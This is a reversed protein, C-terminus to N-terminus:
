TVEITFPLEQHGLSDKKRDYDRYAANVANMSKLSASDLDGITTVARILVVRIQQIHNLLLQEDPVRISGNGHSNLMDCVLRVTSSDWLPSVLAPAQFDMSPFFRAELVARLYTEAHRIDNQPLSASPDRTAVDGILEEAGARNRQRLLRMSSVSCLSLTDNPFLVRYQGDSEFGVVAGRQTPLGSRGVEVHQGETFVGPNSRLAINEDVNLKLRLVKEIACHSKYGDVFLVNMKHGDAGVKLVTGYKWDAVDGCFAYVPCGVSPLPPGLTRAKKTASVLPVDENLVSDFVSFDDDVNSSCTVHFPLMAPGGVDNQEQFSDTFGPQPATDTDLPDDLSCDSGPPNQCGAGATNFPVARLKMLDIVLCTKDSNKEPRGEKLFIRRQKGNPIAMLLLKKNDVSVVTTLYGHVKDDYLNQFRYPSGGLQESTQVPNHESAAKKKESQMDKIQEKREKDCNFPKWTIHRLRTISRSSAAGLYLSLVFFVTSDRRTHFCWMPPVELLNNVIGERVSVSRQIATAGMKLAVKDRLECKGKAYLSDMSQCERTHIHTLFRAEQRGHVGLVAMCADAGPDPIGSVISGLWEVLTFTGDGACEVVIETTRLDKLGFVQAAPVSDQPAQKRKRKKKNMVRKQRADFYFENTLSDVYCSSASTHVDSVAQVLCAINFKRVDCPSRKVRENSIDGPTILEKFKPLEVNALVDHATTASMLRMPLLSRNWQYRDVTAIKEGSEAGSLLVRYTGEEGFSFDVNRFSSPQARAVSSPAKAYVPCSSQWRGRVYRLASYHLPNFDAQYKAHTFRKGPVWNETCPGSVLDPADMGEESLHEKSVVETNSDATAASADSLSENQRAFKCRPNEDGVSEDSDAEKYCPVPGGRTKTRRVPQIVSAASSSDDTDCSLDIIEGTGRGGPQRLNSISKGIASFVSMMSNSRAQDPAVAGLQYKARSHKARRRAKKTVDVKKGKKANCPREERIQAETIDSAKEASCSSGVKGKFACLRRKQEATTYEAGVLTEIRASRDAFDYDGSFASPTNAVEIEHVTAMLQDLGELKELREFGAQLRELPTKDVDEERMIFLERVADYMGIGKLTDVPVNTSVLRCDEKFREEKVRANPIAKLASTEEVSLREKWMLSLPLEDEPRQNRPKAATVSRELLPRAFRVPGTTTPRYPKVEHPATDGPRCVVYGMGGLPCTDVREKKRRMECFINEADDLTMKLGPIEHEMVLCVHLMIEVLKDAQGEVKASHENLARLTMPLDTAKGKAWNSTKVSFDKVCLKEFHRNVGTALLLAILHSAGFSGCGLKLEGIKIADARIEKVLAKSGTKPAVAASRRGMQHLLEVLVRNKSADVGRNCGPQATPNPGKQFSGYLTRMDNAIEITLGSGGESNAAVVVEPTLSCAHLAQTEMYDSTRFHNNSYAHTAILEVLNLENLVGSHRELLVDCGQKMASLHTSRKSAHPRTLLHANVPKGTNLEWTVAVGQDGFAGDAFYSEEFPCHLGKHRSLFFPRFVKECQEEVAAMHLASAYCAARMNFNILVRVPRGDVLVIKAIQCNKRERRCDKKDVHTTVASPVDLPNFIPSLLEGVNGQVIKSGFERVRHQFVPDDKGYGDQAWEVGMEKAIKMMVVFLRKVDPDDTGKLMRPRPGKSVAIVDKSADINVESAYGFNVQVNGRSPDQKAIQRYYRDAVGQLDLEEVLDDLRSNGGDGGIYCDLFDTSQKGYVYPYM